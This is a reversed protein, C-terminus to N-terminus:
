LLTPMIGWPTVAQATGQGELGSNKKGATSFDPTLRSLKQLLFRSSPPICCPASVFLAM